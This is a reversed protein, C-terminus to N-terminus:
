VEIDINHKLLAPPSKPEKEPTKESAEATINIEDNPTTPEEDDKKEKEPNENQHHPDKETVKTRIIRPSIPPTLPALTDVM